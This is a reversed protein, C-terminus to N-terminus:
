FDFQFELKTVDQGSSNMVHAVWVRMYPKIFYQLEPALTSGFEDQSVTVIPSFGVFNDPFMQYTATASWGLGETAFGAEEIDAASEGAAKKSYAMNAAIKHKMGFQKYGEVSYTYLSESHRNRGTDSEINSSTDVNGIIYTGDGNELMPQGNHVSFYVGYSDPMYAYIDATQYGLDMGVIDSETDYSANIFINNDLQHKYIIKNSNKAGADGQTDYLGQVGIDTVFIGWTATHKALMLAGFRDSEFGTRFQEWKVTDELAGNFENTTQGDTKRYNEQVKLWFDGIFGIDDTLMTKGRLRLNGQLYGNDRDLKGQEEYSHQMNGKLRVTAYWRSGNEVDSIKSIESGKNASLYNEVVDSDWNTTPSKAYAGSTLLLSVLVVLKKKDM